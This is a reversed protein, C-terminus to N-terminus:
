RSSKEPLPGPTCSSVRHWRHNYVNRVFFPRFISGARFLQASTATVAVITGGLECLAGIVPGRRRRWNTWREDRGTPRRRCPRSYDRTARGGAIGSPQRLIRQFASIKSLRGTDVGALHSERGNEQSVKLETSSIAPAREACPKARFRATGDRHRRADRFKAITLGFSPALHTGFIPSFSRALRWFDTM